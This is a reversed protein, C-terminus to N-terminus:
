LYWNATFKLVFFRQDLKKIINTFEYDNKIKKVLSQLSLSM